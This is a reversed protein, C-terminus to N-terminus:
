AAAALAATRWGAASAIAAMLVPAVGWGVNGAVGHASFAHGLRATSVRRNLVTFDAPHFVANGAGALVAAAVLAPYGQASALALASLALLALGASLVKQAGYRDVAFGAAAQGIGSVVFFATTLTGARTFSLNFEAMLWPFLSPIVLHFFHSTGHAFAVLSMVRFDGGRVPLEVSFAPKNM